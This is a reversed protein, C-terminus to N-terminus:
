QTKAKAIQADLLNSIEIEPNKGTPRSFLAYSLKGAKNVIATFPYLAIKKVSDIEPYPLTAIQFDFENKKLFNRIRSEKDFTVAVFLITDEQHMKVLRNLAPIEAICPPCQVFWFNFVVIKGKQSEQNISKGDITILDPVNFRDGFYSIYSQTVGGSDSYLFKKDGDVVIRQKQTQGFCGISISLVALILFLIKM